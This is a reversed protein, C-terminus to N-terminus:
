RALTQALFNRLDAKAREAAPGDYKLLMGFLRKGEAVSPDDFLHHAGPYVILRAEARDGGQKRVLRDCAAAPTVDDAGGVLILTPLTLTADALNDCPPYYAATARFRLDRPIAFDSAHRAAAILLATDGGQSYGVAAVRTADVDSRNSLFRLAGFADALGQPLDVSCTEKLGRTTFDDVFLAIYGWSALTEEISRRDAPLGLCSHLLVVAPFPGPGRPKALYGQIDSKRRGDTQPEGANESQALRPAASAFKVLEEAASPSAISSLAALAAALLFQAFHRM